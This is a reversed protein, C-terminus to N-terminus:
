RLFELLFWYFRISRMETVKSIFLRLAHCDIVDFLKFMWFVANVVNVVNMCTCMYKNIYIYLKIYIYIYIAALVKEKQTQTGTQAVRAQQYTALKGLLIFCAETSISHCWVFDTESRNRRLGWQGIHIIQVHEATWVNHWVDGDPCVRLSVLFELLCLTMMASPVFLESGLVGLGRLLIDAGNSNADSATLKFKQTNTYHCGEFVSVRRVLAIHLCWTHFAAYAFAFYHLYPFPWSDSTFIRAVDPAWSPITTKCTQM